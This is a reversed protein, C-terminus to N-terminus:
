LLFYFGHSFVIYKLHKFLVYWPGVTGSGVTVINSSINVSVIFSCPGVTFGM